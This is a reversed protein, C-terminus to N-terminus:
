TGRRFAFAFIFIRLAFFGLFCLPRRRGAGSAFQDTWLARLPSPLHACGLRRGEAVLEILHFEEDAPEDDEGILLEHAMASQTACM